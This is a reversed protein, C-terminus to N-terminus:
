VVVMTLTSLWLKGKRHPVFYKDTASEWASNCKNVAEQVIRYLNLAVDDNMIVASNTSFHCDIKYTTAIKATFAHLVAILRNTELEFPLLGACAASM